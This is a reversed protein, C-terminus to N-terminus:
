REFLLNIVTDVPSCQPDGCQVEQISVSCTAKISEPLLSVCLAEIRRYQEKKEAKEQKANRGPLFM